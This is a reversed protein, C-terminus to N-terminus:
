GCCICRGDRYWGGFSGCQTKCITIQVCQRAEGSETGAPAALAQAAGFGLGATVALAFATKRFIGNKSM